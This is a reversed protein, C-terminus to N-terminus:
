ARVAKGLTYTALAVLAPISFGAFICAGQMVMGDASHAM